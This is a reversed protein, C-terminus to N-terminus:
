KVIITGKMSTHIDCHYDYAGSENFMFSFSEGPNLDHDFLGNNITIDHTVSDHNTWTVTTGKDMTLEPPNFAFNKIEISAAKAEPACGSIGTLLLSTMLIIAIAFETKM